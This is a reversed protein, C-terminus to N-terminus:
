VFCFKFRAATSLLSLTACNMWPCIALQDVFLAYAQLAVTKFKRCHSSPNERMFMNDADSFMPKVLWRQRRFLQAVLESLFDGDFDIDDLRLKGSPLILM